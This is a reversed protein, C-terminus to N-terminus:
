PFSQQRLATQYNKDLLIVYSPLTELVQYLRQRENEAAKTREHVRQELTENLQRLAEEAKKRETINRAVHVSGILTGKKDRLPTTSVIFDGGLNPEHVEATHQKGDKLLQAHPCNNPPASTGHICEYCKLRMAEQPTVGLQKAMAKNARVIRYNTDIIAVFDPVADFTREWDEKSKRIEEETKKRETVDEFIAVFYGKEPCYASVAYWKGLPEAYNEFQAPECTLAVKGYREIWNAPDNAIGKLVETVRKGIIEERKLGTMEEFIHNVELFIYDVPKGSKDVVIKHYAFGDMMRDFFMNFQKRDVSLAKAWDDLSDM